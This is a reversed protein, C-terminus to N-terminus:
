DAAEQRFSEIQESQRLQQRTDFFCLPGVTEAFRCAKVRGPVSEQVRRTLGPPLACEQSEAALLTQSLSLVDTQRAPLHQIRLGSTNYVHGWVNALTRKNLCQCRAYSDFALIDDHHPPQTATRVQCDCRRSARSSPATSSSCLPGDARWVHGAPM